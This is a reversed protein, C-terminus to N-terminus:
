GHELLRLKVLLEQIQLVLHPKQIPLERVGQLADAVARRRVEDLLGPLIRSMEKRFEIAQHCPQAGDLARKELNLFGGRPM